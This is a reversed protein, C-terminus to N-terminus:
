LTTCRAPTGISIRDPVQNGKAEGLETRRQGPTSVSKQKVFAATRLM